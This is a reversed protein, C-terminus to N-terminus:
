RCGQGVVGAGLGALNYSGESAGNGGAYRGLRVEQNGTLLCSGFELFRFAESDGNQVGFGEGAQSFGALKRGGSKM